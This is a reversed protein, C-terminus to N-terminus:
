RRCMTPRKARRSLLGHQLRLVGSDGAPGHVERVGLRGAQQEPTGQDTIWLSAGGIIVGGKAGTPKPLFAVGVDVKGGADAAQKSWSRLTAISEFAIAADGKSFNAGLTTGNTTGSHRGLSRGVGEDQLKKLFNLWNQGAESNFVVKTARESGRGNDPTPTLPPRPPWNRSWSGATSRSTLVVASSRAARTKRSWSRRPPSFSTTPQLAAKRPRAWSRQFREQRLVHGPASSNFPMSYLKGNM